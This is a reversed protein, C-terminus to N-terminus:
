HFGERCEREACNTEKRKKMKTEVGMTYWVRINEAIGGWLFGRAPAYM